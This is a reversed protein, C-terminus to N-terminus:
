APLKFVSISTVLEEADDVLGESLKNQAELQEHTKLTTKQIKEARQHLQDGIKVLTVTKDSIGQVALVLNQMSEQNEQMREGSDKALRTGEVVQTIVNNMTNVTDSTDVQINKVLTSIQGTAERSSEALRQVENAVFMFGKGAEGASAAQMGANLALVHTREAIENIIGVVGSIEQSREGLRKIRKETERIIDRILNISGVTNNVTEMATETAMMATESVKRTTKSIASIEHMAKVATDLDVLTANIEKGGLEAFSMVTSSQIKVKDAARHVNGSIYNVEKLVDSIESTLLNLGDSIAGTVDGSVPVQVTLDKQSLESVAKLLKIISKNLEKHNKESSALTAVRDDLLSNFSVALEGIEDYSEVKARANFDGQSIKNVTELLNSISKLVGRGLTVLILMIVLPILIVAIIFNIIISKEMDNFQASMKAQLSDREINKVEMLQDMKPTVSDAIKQLETFLDTKRNNTEVFSQFLAYYENLLSTLKDNLSTKINANRLISFFKKNEKAMKQVYSNGGYNIFDNEMSRMTLFSNNLATGNLKQIEFLLGKATENLSGRLGSEIDLGIEVQAEIAVFFQSQYKDIIQQLELILQKEEETSLQISISEIGKKLSEMKIEFRELDMLDNNLRFNKEFQRAHLLNTNVTEIKELFQWLQRSETIANKGVLLASKFTYGIVVMGVIFIAMAILFKYSLKLSKFGGKRASNERM